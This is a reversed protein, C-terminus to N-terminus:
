NYVGQESLTAMQQIGGPITIPNVGKWQNPIHKIHNIHWTAGVAEVVDRAVFRPEGGGDVVRISAGEFQFPVINASLQECHADFTHQLTAQAVPIEKTKTLDPSSTRFGQRVAQM